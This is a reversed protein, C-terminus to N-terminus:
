WKYYWGFSEYNAEESLKPTAVNTSVEPANQSNIEMEDLLQYAIVISDVDVTSM